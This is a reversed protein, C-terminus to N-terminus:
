KAPQTNNMLITSGLIIHIGLYYITDYWHVHDVTQRFIAAPKNDFIYIFNTKLSEM